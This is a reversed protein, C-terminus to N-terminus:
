VPPFHGTPVPQRKAGTISQALTEIKEATILPDLEGHLLLPATRMGALAPRLDADRLVAVLAADGQADSRRFATELADVLPDRLARFTSSFVREVMPAALPAMGAIRAAAIAIPM